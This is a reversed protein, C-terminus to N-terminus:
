APDSADSAEEYLKTFLGILEPPAEVKSQRRFFDGFREPPTKPGATARAVPEMKPYETRVYIANPLIERIRDAIGPLPGDTLVTVRLYDNGATAALAQLEELRGRLESVKRGSSLPISEVQAPQGAKADVLLVRKQHGTEGFDLQLPSGAYFCRTPASVEQPRHLHGLAVYQAASPFRAASVAYPQAVHVAWESGSTEAGAAYLHAMLINVTSSSFSQSLLEIMSAIRESYDAYWTEESQTVLQWADVIKRETVFPLVAISAQEGNASLQIVGGSDPRAPEPRIFISLPDLLERLAALRKPHDHNGGIVVAPIRNKVLDAFFTYVLKEAEPAPARSDFLDGTVLVCDVRERLAIELMERLVDAHEGIRSNGRLTKGIHWDSTHLFRM